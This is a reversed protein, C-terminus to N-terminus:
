WKARDMGPKIIKLAVKRQIPPAQVAVFVIGMGGEGIQELLTYPGVQTGPCELLPRELAAPNGLGPPPLDLPGRSADHSALLELVRGCLEQDDACAQRVYAIREQATDMQMAALFVTEESRAPDTM